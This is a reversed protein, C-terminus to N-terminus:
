QEEGVASAQGQEMSKTGEQISDSLGYNETPPAMIGTETEIDLIFQSFEGRGLETTSKKMRVKKGLVEVVGETLFLGKFLEHLRDINSEGTEQAILPYYVGWLYNNQAV